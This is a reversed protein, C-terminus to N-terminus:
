SPHHGSHRRASLPRRQPHRSDTRGPRDELRPVDGDDAFAGIGRTDFFNTVFGIATQHPTPRAPEHGSHEGGARKRAAMSWWYVAYVIAIAILGAILALKLDM